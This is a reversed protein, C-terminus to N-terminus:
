QCQKDSVNNDSVHHTTNRSATASAVAAARHPKYCKNINDKSKVNQLKTKLEHQALKVNHKQKTVGEYSQAVKDGQKRLLRCSKLM